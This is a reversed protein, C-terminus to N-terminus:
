LYWKARFLLGEAHIGDTRDKFAATYKDCTATCSNRCVQGNVNVSFQIEAGAM